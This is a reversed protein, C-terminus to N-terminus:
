REIWNQIEAAIQNSNKEIFMMHGNGLIGVDELKLHTADVGAQRLYEVTCWDYQAHYSAPATVVLVPIRELNVLIRPTGSAQLRGDLLDPAAAKVERTALDAVPDTVPPEYTIPANSIGYPSGPVTRISVKSFPPGLPELAVISKVLDPRVDGLLFPIPGGASHGFVIVPRGITDLLAACAAQSAGEQLVQDKIMQVGSAYFRDFVPDGMVGSGPWQTHFEAQPWLKYNRSATFMKQIQEAPYVIVDGIGPSWPSRGRFPQDVLYLEYGQSLFYSAWGLEGDPKTIWDIGTRTGGHIFLLPFPKIESSQSPQLHEVYMQGQLSHNGEKDEVYQGGIYFSRRHHPTQRATQATIEVM